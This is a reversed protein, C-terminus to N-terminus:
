YRSFWRLVAGRVFHNAGAWEVLVVDRMRRGEARAGEIEARMAAAGFPMEWASCACWVYRWEVHAWGGEDEPFMAARRLAMASGLLLASLVLADSGGPASPAPALTDLLEASTMRTLTPPPDTLPTRLEFSSSSEHAYYGSVWAGFIRTREPPPITPDM